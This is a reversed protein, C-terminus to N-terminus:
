IVQFSIVFNNYNDERVVIRQSKEDEKSGFMDIVTLKLVYINGQRTIDEYKLAWNSPYTKKVYEEYDELSPFYNQKFESYLLNYADEYEKKELHKFYEGCYYEMRDREGLESLKKQIEENTQAVKVEETQLSQTNHSQSYNSKSQQTQEPKDIIKAYLIFNVIILLIVICILTIDIKNMKSQIRGMILDDGEENNLIM